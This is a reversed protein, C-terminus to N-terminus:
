AKAEKPTPLDVRQERIEGMDDPALDTYGHIHVPAGSRVTVEAEPDNEEYIDHTKAYLEHEPTGRKVIHDPHVSAHLVVGGEEGEERDGMLAFNGAIGKSPTWHIGVGNMQTTDFSAEGLGRYLKIHDAFQPGLNEPSTM